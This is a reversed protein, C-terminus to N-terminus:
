SAHAAWVESADVKRGFAVTLAHLARNLEARRRAVHTRSAEGDMCLVEPELAAYVRQFAAMAESQTLKPAKAVDQIMDINRVDRLDAVSYVEIKNGNAAVATVVGKVPESRTGGKAWVAGPYTVTDGVKLGHPTSVEARDLAGAGELALLTRISDPNWRFGTKGDRVRVLDVCNKPRSPTIGVVRYQTDSVRITKGFGDTPLGFKPAYREWTAQDAATTDLKPAPAPAPAPAPGPDNSDAPRVSEPPVRWGRSSDSCEIVTLTKTNISKVTGYVTMGRRNPFMVRSGISPAPM